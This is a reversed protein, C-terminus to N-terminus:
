FAHPPGTQPPPPAPLGATITRGSAVRTPHAVPVPAMTTASGQDPDALAYAFAVFACPKDAQDSNQHKGDHSTAHHPMGANMRTAGSAIGFCPMLGIRDASPMWGSPILIRLFLALGALLVFAWQLRDQKQAYMVSRYPLAADSDIM